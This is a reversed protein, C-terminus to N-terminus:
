DRETKVPLWQVYGNGIAGHGRDLNGESNNVVIEQSMEPSTEGKESVGLAVSDAQAATQSIVTIIALKQKQFRSVASEELTQAISLNEIANLSNRTIESLHLMAQGCYISTGASCVKEYATKTKIFISYQVQLTKYPDMQELNFILQKTEEAVKDSLLLRSLALGESAARNNINLTSLQTEILRLKNFDSKAAAQRAEFGLTEGLILPNNNSLERAKNLGWYAHKAEGFREEIYMIALASKIQDQRNVQADIVQAAHARVANGYLERGMYLDVLTMRIAPSKSDKSYRDVFKQYFFITQDEWAMPVSYSGGLLLADHDFSSNP